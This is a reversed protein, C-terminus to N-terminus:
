TRIKGGRGLALPLLRESFGVGDLLAVPAGDHTMERGTRPQGLM